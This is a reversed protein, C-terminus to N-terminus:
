TQKSVMLGLRACLYKRAAAYIYNVTVNSVVITVCGQSYFYVYGPNFMNSRTRLSLSLIAM